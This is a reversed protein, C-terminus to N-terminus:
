PRGAFIEFPLPKQGPFVLNDPDWYVNITKAADVDVVGQIVGFKTGDTYSIRWGAPLSAGAKPQIQTPSVWEVFDSPRGVPLTVGPAATSATGSSHSNIKDAISTSAFDVSEALTDTLASVYPLKSIALLYFAFMVIFAIYWGGFHKEDPKSCRANYGFWVMVIGGFFVFCGKLFSATLM